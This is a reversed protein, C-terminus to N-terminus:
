DENRLLDKIVVINSLSLHAKERQLDFALLRNGVRKGRPTGLNEGM